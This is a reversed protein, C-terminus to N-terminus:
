MDDNHPQVQLTETLGAHIDIVRGGRIVNKPIRKLFNEVSVTRKSSSSSNHSHATETNNPTSATSTEQSLKQGTGPFLRYHHPTQRYEECHKDILQSPATTAKSYYNM